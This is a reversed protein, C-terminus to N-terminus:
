RLLAIVAVKVAVAAAAASSPVESRVGEIQSHARDIRQVVVVM